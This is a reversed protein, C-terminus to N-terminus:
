DTPSGNACAGGFALDVTFHGRRKGARDAKFVTRIAIRMNGDIRNAGGTGAM